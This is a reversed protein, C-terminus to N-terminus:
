SDREVLDAVVLLVVISDPPQMDAPNYASIILHLVPGHDRDLVIPMHERESRHMAHLVEWFRLSNLEQRIHHVFQDAFRLDSVARVLITVAPFRICTKISFERDGIISLDSSCVDSSWD